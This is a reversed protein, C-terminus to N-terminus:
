AGKKWERIYDNVVQRVIKFLGNIGYSPSIVRGELSEEKEENVPPVEIGLERKLEDPVCVTITSMFDRCFIKVPELSHVDTEFCWQNECIPSLYKGAEPTTEILHNKAAPGIIISIHISPKTTRTWEFADVYPEKHSSEHTWTENLVRVNDIRSLRFQRCPDAGEKAEEYAWLSRGDCILQIPELIRDGKSDSNSSCYGFIQIKRKREIAELIRLRIQEQKRGSSQKAKEKALENERQAIMERDMIRTSAGERRFAVRDSSAREHLYVIKDAKKAIICIVDDSYEEAHMKGRVYKEDCFYASIKQNIWRAFADNTKFGLKERDGRVGYHPGLAIEGSDKVGIYIIGGDTNMMACAASFVVLTQDKGHDGASVVISTKFEVSTGEHGFNHNSTSM